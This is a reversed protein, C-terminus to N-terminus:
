GDMWGWDSSVTGVCGAVMDWWVGARLNRPIRINNLETQLM